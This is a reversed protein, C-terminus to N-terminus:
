KRAISWQDDGDISRATGALRTRSSANSVPEPQGEQIGPRHVPCDRPQGQLFANVQIIPRSDSTQQAM